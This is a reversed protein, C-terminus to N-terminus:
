ASTSRAAVIPVTGAARVDRVVRVRGVAIKEGVAQGSVLPAGPKATLRFMDAV